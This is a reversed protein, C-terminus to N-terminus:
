HPIRAVYLDHNNVDLQNSTFYLECGDASLMPDGDDRDSNVMPIPEPLGFDQTPDQRTAYWLNTGGTSAM